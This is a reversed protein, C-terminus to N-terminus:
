HRTSRRRTSPLQTVAITQAISNDAPNVDTEALTTFAIATDYGLMTAVATVTVTKSEGPALTGVVGSGSAFQVNAPLGFHVVVGTAGAGGHNTVVYSFTILDGPHIEPPTVSMTLSLDVTPDLAPLAVVTFTTSAQNNAPTDDNTASATATATVSTGPLQNALVTMTYTRTEGTVLTGINCPGFTCPLNTSVVPLSVSDSVSLAVGEANVAGSNNLNVVYTVTDGPKVQSRSAAITVSVEASPPPTGIYTTAVPEDNFLNTNFWSGFDVKSTVSGTASQPLVTSFTIVAITGPTMVDTTCGVPTGKSGGNCTWGPPATVNTIDLPTLGNWMTLFAQPGHANHPGNNTVTATATLTSGPDVSRPASLTAAPDNPGIVYATFTKTLDALPTTIGTGLITFTFPLPTDPLADNDVSVNLELFAYPSLGSTSPASCDVVSASPHACSLGSPPSVIQALTTHAPLDVRLHFDTIVGPGPLLYSAFLELTSGPPTGIGGWATLTVDANGARVTPACFIVTLLLAIAARHLM